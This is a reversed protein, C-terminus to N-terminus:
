KVRREITTRKKVKEYRVAQHFKVQNAVGVVVKQAEPDDLKAKNPGLPEKRTGSLM